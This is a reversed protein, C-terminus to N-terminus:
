LSRRTRALGYNGRRRVRAVIFRRPRSRRGRGPRGAALGRAFGTGHNKGERAYARPSFHCSKVYHARRARTFRHRNKLKRCVACLAERAYARPAYQCIKVYFRTGIPSKSTDCKALSLSKGRWRWHRGIVALVPPSNIPIARGRNAWIWQGSALAGFMPSRVVGRENAM